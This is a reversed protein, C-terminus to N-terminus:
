EDTIRPEKCRCVPEKMEKEREREREVEKGALREESQAHAEQKRVPDGQDM